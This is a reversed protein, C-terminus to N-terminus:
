APPTFTVSFPINLGKTDIICAGSTIESGITYSQGVSVDYGTFSTFNFIRINDGATITWGFYPSLDQFCLKDAHWIYSGGTTTNTAAVGPVIVIQSPTAPPGGERYVNCTQSQVTFATGNNGGGTGFDDYCIYAEIDNGAEVSIAIPYAGSALQLWKNTAFQAVQDPAFTCYVASKSYVYFKFKNSWTASPLLEINNGLNFSNSLQYPVNTVNEWSAYTRGAITTAYASIHPDTCGNPDTPSPRQPVSNLSLFRLARLLAIVTGDAGDTSEGVNEFLRRVYYLLSHAADPTSGTTLGLTARQLQLMQPVLEVLNDYPTTDYNGSNNLPKAVADMIRFISWAISTKQYPPLAENPNSIANRVALLKGDMSTTDTHVNEIAAVVDALTITQTPPPTGTQALILQGLLSNTYELRAMLETHQTASQQQFAEFKQTLTTM